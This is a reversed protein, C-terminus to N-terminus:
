DHCHCEISRMGGGLGFLGQKYESMSVLWRFKCSKKEVDTSSILSFSLFMWPRWTLSLSFVVGPGGPSTLPNMRPWSGNKM